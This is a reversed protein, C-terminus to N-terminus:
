PRHRRFFKCVLYAPHPPGARVPLSDLHRQIDEAFAAASAYRLERDKELAKMAIWDLDGRLRGCGFPLSGATANSSGSDRFSASSSRLQESPRPPVTEELLRLFGAPTRGSKDAAAFPPSGTLLEYLVVGLSYIDTRTDLDSKGCAQEPSMSSLTGILQRSRTLPPLLESDTFVARAIGFDIVKPYFEGETECVLINSPKLDRHLVGKQHAHHVALCVQAFLRLRGALPMRAERCCRTITKGEVLEMVFFPRGDRTSGADLFRAIGPHEMLALAQRESDFRALIEASRLGPKLLKLAVAQRPASERRARYVTGFGGQGLVELLVYGPCAPFGARIALLPASASAAQRQSPENM